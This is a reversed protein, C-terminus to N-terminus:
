LAQDCSLVKKAPVSSELSFHKQGYAISGTFSPLKVGTLKYYEQNFSDYYAEVMGRMTGEANGYNLWSPTPVMHFLNFWNLLHNQLNETSYLKKMFDRRGRMVFADGIDRFAFVGTMLGKRDRQILINQSHPSDLVIDTKAVFEAYSRAYPEVIYKKVFLYPDSIQHARMMEALIEPNFIVFLPEYTVAANALIDYSRLSWAWEGLAMALVDPALVSRSLASKAIHESLTVADFAEVAEWPKEQMASGVRDTSTKFTYAKGTKTDVFFYSRSSTPYVTIDAGQRYSIGERQLFDFILKRYTKDEPNLIWRFFPEGEHIRILEEPMQQESLLSLGTLASLPIEVTPAKVGEANRRQLIGKETEMQQFKM